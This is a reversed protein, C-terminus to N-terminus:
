PRRCLLHMKDLPDVYVTQAGVRWALRKAVRFVKAYAALRELAFGLPVYKGATSEAALIFGTRDLLARLDDRRFFYIHEEPKQYEIWGTGFLRALLSSRDPTIVSLIGGPELLNWLVRLHTEPDPLHEIVDWSTILRMAGVKAVIRAATNTDGRDVRLGRGHAENTAHASVDVGYAHMGEEIAVELAYGFACGIDLFGGGVLPKRAHKLIWAFRRRFTRLVSAREGGYDRYGCLLSDPSKFYEPGYVQEYQSAPLRPNVFRLGCSECDVIPWGRVSFQERSERGGCRACGIRERKAIPKAVEEM